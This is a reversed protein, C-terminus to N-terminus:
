TMGTSTAPASGRPTTTPLFPDRRGELFDIKALIGLITDVEVLDESNGDSSVTAMDSLWGVRLEVRALSGNTAVFPIVVM